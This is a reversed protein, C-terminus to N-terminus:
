KNINCIYIIVSLRSLNIKLRHNLIKGLYVSVMDIRRADRFYSFDARHRIKDSFLIEKLVLVIVDLAMKGGKKENELVDVCEFIEKEFRLNIKFFYIWGGEVFDISVFGGLRIIKRANCKEARGRLM